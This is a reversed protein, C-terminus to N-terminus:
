AVVQSGRGIFSRMAKWRLLGITGAPTLNASMSWWSHSTLTSLTIRWWSRHHMGVSLFGLQSCTLGLICKYPADTAHVENTRSVPLGNGSTVSCLFCHHGLESASSLITVSPKTPLGRGPVRLWHFFADHEWRMLVITCPPYPQDVHEVLLAPYRLPPYHAM